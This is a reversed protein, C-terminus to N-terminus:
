APFYIKLHERMLRLAKGMHKEVAKVSIDLQAAIEAYSMEEFRSLSFVTRCKPPLAQLAQDISKSVEQQSIIDDTSNHSYSAHADPSDDMSRNRRNKELYNLATNISSRYLYAKIYGGADMQERKRWVKVFVDQVIDEAADSDHVINFVTRCLPSYYTRFLNEIFKEENQEKLALLFRQEETEKQQASSKFFAALLWLHQM